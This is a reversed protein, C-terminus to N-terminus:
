RESEPNKYLLTIKRPTFAELVANVNFKNIIRNSYKLTRYIKIVCFGLIEVNLLVADSHLLCFSRGGGVRKEVCSVAM